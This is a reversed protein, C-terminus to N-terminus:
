RLECHGIWGDAPRFPVIKFPPLEAVSGRADGAQFEVDEPAFDTLPWAFQSFAERVLPIRRPDFGMLLANVWEAAAPNSSGTLFGSGVPEPSLPGNRDGGIIADTISIVTRHPRGDLLADARGHRLIRQLDLCMRWVTDNGHWAGEVNADGGMRRAASALVAASKGLVRSVRRSSLSNAVDLFSEALSKCASAGEYCDGGDASGGKRHHPLYEKRGNIGVLNKLAGTVGSRGHCKLKPLSIVVDADIVERAVLYQHKSQHHTSRMWKPHYMTVRFRDQHPLSDLLSEAGLDFLVFDSATRSTDVRAAGFRNGDLVTSRFDTVRVDCEASSQRALASAGSEALLRQFNCGQIPADGIIITAPRALLVYDLVAEILTTHTILSDRPSGNLSEHLVWNPKLVVRQGPRIWVGLPNWARTGEAQPDLGWHRLLNRLALAAVTEVRGAPLEPAAVPVGLKGYDPRESRAIAVLRDSPAVAPHSSSPM